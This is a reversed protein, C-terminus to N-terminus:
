SYTDRPNQWQKKEKVNLSETRQPCFSYNCFDWMLMQM